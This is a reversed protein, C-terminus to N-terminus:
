HVLYNSDTNRSVTSIGGCVLCCTEFTMNAISRSVKEDVVVLCGTKEGRIRFFRSWELVRQFQRKSGHLDTRM